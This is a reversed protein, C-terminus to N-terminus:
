LSEAHAPRGEGIKKVAVRPQRRVHGHPEFLRKSRVSLFEHVYLGRRIVRLLTLSPFADGNAPVNRTEEADLGALDFAPRLVLQIRPVKQRHHKSTQNMGGTM